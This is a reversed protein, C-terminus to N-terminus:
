NYHDTSTRKLYLITSSKCMYVCMSISSSTLTKPPSISKRYRIMFNNQVHSMNLCCKQLWKHLNKTLLLLLHFDEQNDLFYKIPFLHRFIYNVFQVKTLAVWRRERQKLPKFHIKDWHGTETANSVIEIKCCDCTTTACLPIKSRYKQQKAMPRNM